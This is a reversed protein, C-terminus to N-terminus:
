AERNTDAMARVLGIVARRVAEGKLEAFAECLMLCERTTMFASLAVVSPDEETAKSAPLGEIFFGFPCGLVDALAFLRSAAIRNIGKEYKQVQQFTLGLRKGLAEQSLGLHMRRIRVRQGIHEDVFDTQRPDKAGDIVEGNPLHEAM